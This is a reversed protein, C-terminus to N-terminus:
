LWGSSERGPEIEVIPNWYVTSLFNPYDNDAAAKGVFFALPWSVGDYGVISVNKALRIGGMDGRYTVFNM